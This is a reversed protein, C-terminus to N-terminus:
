QQVEDAWQNTTHSDLHGVAYIGKIQRRDANEKPATDTHVTGDNKILMVHGKVYVIYASTRLSTSKSEIWDRKQDPDHFEKETFSTQSDSKLTFTPAMKIFQNVTLPVNKFHKNWLSFRSRVTWKKRAAKILDKLTHLYRVEKDVDLAYAVARACINKNPNMPNNSAKISKKRAETM